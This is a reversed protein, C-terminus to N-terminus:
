GAERAGRDAGREVQITVPVPCGRPPLPETGVELRTGLRRDQKDALRCAGAARADGPDREGGLALEGAAAGRLRARGDDMAHQRLQLELLAHQEPVDDGGMRAARGRVPSGAAGLDLRAKREGALQGSAAAYNGDAAARLGREASRVQTVWAM